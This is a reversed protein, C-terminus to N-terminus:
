SARRLRDKNRRITARLRDAQAQAHKAQEFNGSLRFGAAAHEARLAAKTDERIVSLLVGNTTVKM